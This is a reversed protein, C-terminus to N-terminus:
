NNLAGRKKQDLVQNLLKDAEKNKERKVHHYNISFEARKELSKIKNVLRKLHDSKIKYRGNLQRVVLQSDIYFDVKDPKDKIKDLWHWAMLVANYEAINNTAKGLYLKESHIIEGSSTKALFAAASPGPNGRSGGDSYIKIKKEM